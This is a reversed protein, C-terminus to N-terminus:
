RARRTWSRPASAHRAARDRRRGQRDRRGARRALRGLAVRDARGPDAPVAHRRRVRGAGQGPRGLSGVRRRRGRDHGASLRDRLPRGHPRVACAADGGGARAQRDRCLREGGGAEFRAARVRRRREVDRQAVPDGREHLVPMPEGTLASEDLVAAEGTVIGDAPVVDGSRVVVADGVGLEEVPVEDLRGDRVAIPSGRRGSSSSRSSGPECAQERAGRARERGGADPRDGRRGRVARARACRGDVRSRDRRGRRRRAPALPAGVLDFPVLIVAVSVAWLANGAAELGVLRLVGGVVVAALASLALVRESMAVLDQRARAARAAAPPHACRGRRLRSRARHRSQPRARRDRSPVGRAPLARLLVDELAAADAAPKDRYGAVLRGAKGTTVLEHADVDTLPALRFQADGILEAFVGGVGFAVLPGFVPDQVVGALLEVGGRIMPQVVVPTGIRAVEARVSEEDALDLALLKRDSKHAGAEATKVSSRIASRAPM